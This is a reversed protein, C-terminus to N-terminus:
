DRTPGNAPGWQPASRRAWPSGWRPGSPRSDGEEETATESALHSPNVSTIMATGWPPVSARAWPRGSRPGWRRAWPPSDAALAGQEEAAPGRVPRASECAGVDDGAAEGVAAGVASGVATLQRV